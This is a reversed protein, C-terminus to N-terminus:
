RLNQKRIFHCCYGDIKVLYKSSKNSKFSIIFLLYIKIINMRNFIREITLAIGCKSSWLLAVIKALQLDLGGSSLTVIEGSGTMAPCVQLKVTEIVSAFTIGVPEVNLTSNSLRLM